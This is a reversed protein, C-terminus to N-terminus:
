SACSDLDDALVEDKWTCIRKTMALGSTNLLGALSVYMTNPSAFISSREACACDAAASCNLCGVMGCGAALTRKGGASPASGAQRPGLAQSARKGGAQNDKACTLNGLLTTNKDHDIIIKYLLKVVPEVNIKKTKDQQFSLTHIYSIASIM